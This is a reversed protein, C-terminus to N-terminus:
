SRHSKVSLTTSDKIGLMEAIIMSLGHVFYSDLRGKGPLAIPSDHRFTGPVWPLLRLKGVWAEGGFHDRRQEIDNRRRRVFRASILDL